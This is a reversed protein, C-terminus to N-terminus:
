VTPDFTYYRAAALGMLVAGALLLSWGIKTRATWM